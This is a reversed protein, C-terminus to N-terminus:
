QKIQAVASKEIIIKGRKLVLEANLSLPSVAEVKPINRAARAAQKNAADPIVLVSTKGALTNIARALDKTKKIALSDVIIIENDAARKALASHLAARSMKKNIKKKYSREKSPGHAVGGGVWIPSRISGHRARGTGKQRWPKVGGGRVEARTKTHAIPERRNAQISTVVQHVLDANWPRDFIKPLEIEGIEKGQINYIPAKM